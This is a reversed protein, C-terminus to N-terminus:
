INFERVEGDVKLVRASLKTHAIARKQRCWENRASIGADSATNAQINVIISGTTGFIEQVKIRYTHM